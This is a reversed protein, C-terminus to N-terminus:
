ISCHIWTFAISAVWSVAAIAYKQKCVSFDFRLFFIEYNEKLNYCEYM